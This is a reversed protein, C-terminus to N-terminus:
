TSSCILSTQLVKISIFDMGDRPLVWYPPLIGFLPSKIFPLSTQGCQLPLIIVPLYKNRVLAMIDPHFSFFQTTM